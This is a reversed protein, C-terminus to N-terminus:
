LGERRGLVDHRFRCPRLFLHKGDSQCERYQIESELIPRSPRSNKGAKKVPVPVCDKLNKM